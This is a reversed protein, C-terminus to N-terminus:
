LFLLFGSMNSSYISSSIFNFNNVKPYEIIEIETDPYVGISEKALNIADHLGGLEDVLGINQAEKGSWVRGLAIDDLEDIDNKTLDLWCEANNLLMSTLMSERRLLGIEFHFNGLSLVNLLSMINSIM